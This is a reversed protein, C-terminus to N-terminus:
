RAGLLPPRKKIVKLAVAIAAIAHHSRRKGHVPHRHAPPATGWRILRTRCQRSKVRQDSGGMPPSGNTWWRRTASASAQSSLCISVGPPPFASQRRTTSRTTSLARRRSHRFSSPRCVYVLGWRDGKPPAVHDWFGGNEDYTIVVLMHAWQPSKELHSVIDAVHQDGSM